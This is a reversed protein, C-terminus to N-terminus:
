YKHTNRIFCDLGKKLEMAQKYSDKITITKIDVGIENKFIDYAEESIVIDGNSRIESIGDYQQAKVNILHAKDLSINAPIVLEVGKRGLRVPYGGELGMPGPAHTYQQTDWLFALINKVASTAVLFQVQSGESRMGRKPLEALFKHLDGLKETVDENDSFVRLYFPADSSHGYRTWNFSHFHHAILQVGISNIPVNLIESSAKKIYPIVLDINGIGITPAMGQKGLSANVADPFSSNIVWTELKSLRVATMLKSTLALHMASWPGLGCGIKYIRDVTEKPLQHIVWWSQLTTGNFILFPKIKDLLLATNEIELLDIKMHSIKPYLGLLSAGEIASNSKRFALEESSDAVIIECIGPVRALLELVLGGLEGMGILLIRERKSEM